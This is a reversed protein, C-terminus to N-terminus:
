VSSAKAFLSQMTPLPSTVNVLLRRLIDPKADILASYGAPTAIEPLRKEQFVSVAGSFQNQTASTLFVM